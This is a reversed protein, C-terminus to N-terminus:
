GHKGVIADARLEFPVRGQAGCFGDLWGRLGLVKALGGDDRRDPGVCVGDFLESCQPARADIDNAHVEGVARIVVMLADDVVGPLHDGSVGSARDRDGQISFAWLNASTQHLASFIDRDFRTMLEDNGRVVLVAFRAIALAQPQVVFIKGLDGCWPFEDVNIITDQREEDQGNVAGVDTNTSEVVPGERRALPDVERLRINIKGCKRVLVFFSRSNPTL